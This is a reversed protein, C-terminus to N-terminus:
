RVPASPVMLPEVRLTPPEMVTFAAEEVTSPSLLVKLPISDNEFSRRREAVVLERRAVSTLPLTMAVVLIPVLRRVPIKPVMLPVDKLTPLVMVTPEADVVNSAFLLVKLPLLKKLADVVNELMTFRLWADLERMVSPETQNELREFAMREVFAFPCTTADVEIPVM